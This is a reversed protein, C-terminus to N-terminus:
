EVVVMTDIVIEDPKTSTSIIYTGLQTPKFYIVTDKTVIGDPCKGFSEFTGYAKLTYEFDKTKRLEFYLNNWCGNDAQAKARLYISSLNVSDPIDINPIAVLDFKKVYSDAPDKCSYLLGLLFIFAIVKM